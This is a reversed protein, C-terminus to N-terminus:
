NFFNQVKNEYDQNEIFYLISIKKLWVKVVHTLYQEDTTM